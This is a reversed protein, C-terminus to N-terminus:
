KCFQSYFPEHGLRLKRAALDVTADHTDLLQAAAEATKTDLATLLAEADEVTVLNMDMMDLRALVENVAGDEPDWAAVAFRDTAWDHVQVATMSGVKWLSLISTVDTRSLTQSM